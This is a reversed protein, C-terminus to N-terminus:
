GVCVLCFSCVSVSFSEVKTFASCSTTKCFVLAWGTVRWVNLTCQYLVVRSQHLCFLLYNQLVGSSGLRNSELSQTSRTWLFRCVKCRTHVVQFWGQPKICGSFRLTYELVAGTKECYKRWNRHVSQGCFGPLTDVCSKPQVAKVIRGWRNEPLCCPWFPMWPQLRGLCCLTWLETQPLYVLRPRERQQCCFQDEYIGAIKKAKLFQRCRLSKSYFTLFFFGDNCVARGGWPKIWSLVM